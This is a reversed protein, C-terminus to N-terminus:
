SWQAFSFIPELPLVESNYEPPDRKSDQNPCRSDQKLIHNEETKGRYNRLPEKFYALVAEKWISKLEDNLWFGVMRRQFNQAISNMTLYVVSFYYLLM